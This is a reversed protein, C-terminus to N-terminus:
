CNGPSACPAMVEEIREDLRGIDATHADIRDLLLRAMFAHHASFRGTLAEVLAPIKRRLTRKALDAIVVPDAQGAILAELMAWGPFGPSTPPWRHCHSGPKESSSKLRQVKRSRERTIHTRTRASGAMGPDTAAARVVGNGAWAGWIPWAVRRTHASRPGGTGHGTLAAPGARPAAATRGPTPPPAPPRPQKSPAPARASRRPAASHGQLRGNTRPRGSGSKGPIHM